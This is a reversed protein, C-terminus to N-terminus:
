RMVASSFDRACHAWELRWCLLRHQLTLRRMAYHGSWVLTDDLVRVDGAGYKLQLSM